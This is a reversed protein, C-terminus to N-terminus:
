FIQLYAIDDIIIQRAGDVDIPILEYGISFILRVRFNKNHIVLAEINLCQLNNEFVIDFYIHISNTFTTKIPEFSNLFYLLVNLLLFVILDNGRM